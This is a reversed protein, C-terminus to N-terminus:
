LPSLHAFCCRALDRRVIDDLYPDPHVADIFGGCSPCDRSLVTWRALCDSCATHACARIKVAHEVTAFCVPCPHIPSRQRRSGGQVTNLKAALRRERDDPSLSVAKVAERYSEDESLSDDDADDETWSPPTNKPTEHSTVVSLMAALASKGVPHTFYAVVVATTTFSNRSVLPVAIATALGAHAAMKARAYTALEATKIDVIEAQGLLWCRGVLAIGPAFNSSVARRMMAAMPISLCRACAHGNPSRMTSYCHKACRTATLTLAIRTTERFQDGARPVSVRGDSRWIEVSEWVDPGCETRSVMKSAIWEILPKDGDDIWVRDRNECNDVEKVTM